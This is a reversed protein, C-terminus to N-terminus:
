TLGFWAMCLGIFEPMKGEPVHVWGDEVRIFFSGPYHYGTDAWVKAGVFWVHPLSGDHNNVGAHEIEIREIGRWSRAIMARMGEEPTAYIGERKAEALSTVTYAWVQTVLAFVVLVASVIALTANILRQRPKKM